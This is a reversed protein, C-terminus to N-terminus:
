GARTRSSPRGTLYDGLGAEALSVRLRRKADAVTTRPIGLDRAIDAVSHAELLRLALDRQKDSLGAIVRAVDLALPDIAGDRAPVVGARGAQHRGRPTDLSLVRRPDRKDAGRDRLLNSVLRAVVM